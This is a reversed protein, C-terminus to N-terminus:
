SGQQSDIQSKLTTAENETVDEFHRVALEELPDWASAAKKHTLTAYKWLIALLMILGSCLIALVSRFFLTNGYDTQLIFYLTISFLVMLVMWEHSYLKSKIAAELEDRHDQTESIESYINDMVSNEKFKAQKVFRLLEDYYPNDTTIRARAELVSDTYVKLRAKLEKRDHIELLHAHAMIDLITRVESRLIGAITEVRRKQSDLIPGFYFGFLISTVSFLAIQGDTLDAPEYQSLFIWFLAFSLLFILSLRIKM